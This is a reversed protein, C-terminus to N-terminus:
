NDIWKDNLIAELLYKWGMPDALGDLDVLGMWKNIINYGYM